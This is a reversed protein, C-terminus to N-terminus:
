SSNLLLGACTSRWGLKRWMSVSLFESLFRPKMNKWISRGARPTRMCCVIEMSEESHTKYTIQSSPSTAGSECSPMVLAPVDMAQFFDVSFHNGFWNSLVERCAHQVQTLANFCSLRCVGLCTQFGVNMGFLCSTYVSCCFQFSPM